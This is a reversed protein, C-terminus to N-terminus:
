SQALRDWDSQTAKKTKTEIQTYLMKIVDIYTLQKLDNVSLGAKICTGLFEHEPFASILSDSKIKSLKENLENVTM